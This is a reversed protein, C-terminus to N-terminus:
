ETAQWSYTVVGQDDISVKLNYSGEEEPMMLDGMLMRIQNVYAEAQGAKNEANNSAAVATEASVAATQAAETTEMKSLAADYASQAAERASKAALGAASEDLSEEVVEGDELIYAMDSLSVEKASSGNYQTLEGEINLSLAYPNPLAENETMQEIKQIATMCRNLLDRFGSMDSDSIYDDENYLANRIKLYFEFSTIQSGDTGMLSITMTVSGAEDAVAAPIVYEVENLKNGDDDELITADGYITSGDGKVGRVTAVTVDIMDMPTKNALLTFHCVRSNTDGESIILTNSKSPRAFDVVMDYKVNM